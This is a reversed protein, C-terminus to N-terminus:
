LWLDKPNYFASSLSYSTLLESSYQPFAEILTKARYRKMRYTFPQVGLHNLHLRTEVVNHSFALTDLTYEEESVEHVALMPPCVNVNGISTGTVDLSLLNCTLRTLPPCSDKSQRRAYVQDCVMWNWSWSGVELATELEKPQPHEATVFYENVFEVTPLHFVMPIALLGAGGCLLISLQFPFAMVHELEHNKREIQDFTRSAEEYDVKDVIMIHRKLMEELAQLHYEMSALTALSSDDLDRVTCPVNKLASSSSLRPTRQRRKLRFVKGAPM